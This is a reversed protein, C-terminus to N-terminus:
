TLQVLRMLRFWKSSVRPDWQARGSQRAFGISLRTLKGRYFPFPSSSFSVELIVFSDVCVSLLRLVNLPSVHYQVISFIRRWTKRKFHRARHWIRLPPVMLYEDYRVASANTPACENDAINNRWKRKHFLPFSKSMTLYWLSPVIWNDRSNFLMLYWSINVYSNIIIERLLMVKVYYM